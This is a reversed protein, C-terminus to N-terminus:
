DKIQGFPTIYILTEELPLNIINRIISDDFNSLAVLGLKLSESQLYLNQAAHGAELYVEKDHAIGGYAEAMKTMSNQNLANYLATQYKGETLPKLSHIPEREGPIYQYLGANLGEINNAILFISLPYTSKASPTTRDGWDVNVGQAAWLLQSADKLTVVEDSYSRKPRLSKLAAEISVSSRYSPDPLKINNADEVAIPAAAPVNETQQNNKKFLLAAGLVLCFISTVVIPIAWNTKVKHKQKDKNSHKDSM